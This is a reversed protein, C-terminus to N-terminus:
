PPPMAELSIYAEDGRGPAFSLGRPIVPQNSIAPPVVASSCGCDFEGGGRYTRPPRTRWALHRRLVHRSWRRGAFRLTLTYATQSGHHTAAALPSIGTFRVSCSPADIVDDSFLPASASRARRPAASPVPRTTGCPSTETMESRRRVRDGAALVRSGRGDLWRQDGDAVRDDRLVERHGVLRLDLRGRQRRDRRRPVPRCANVPAVAM